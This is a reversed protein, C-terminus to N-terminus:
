LEKLDIRAVDDFTITSLDETDPNYLTLIREEQNNIAKYLVNKVM